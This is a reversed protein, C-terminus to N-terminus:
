QAIGLESGCSDGCTLDLMMAMPRRQNDPPFSRKSATSVVATVSHKRLVRVLPRSRNDPPFSRKSAMSVVATVAHEGVVM